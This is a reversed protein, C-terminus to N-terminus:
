ISLKPENDHVPKERTHDIVVTRPKDVSQCSRDDSSEPEAIKRLLLISALGIACALATMTTAVKAYPEALLGALFIALFVAITTITMAVTVLIIFSAVKSWDIDTREPKNM